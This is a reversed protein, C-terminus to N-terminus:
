GFKLFQGQVWNGDNVAWWTVGDVVRSEGTLELTSGGPAVYAVDAHQDPTRRVNLGSDSVVTATVAGEDPTTAPSPTAEAEPAPTAAATATPAATAGLELYQFGPGSGLAWNGDNVEHWLDGDLQSTVGTLELQSGGVAVYQVTGVGVGPRDRVNLGDAPIVVATTAVPRSEIRDALQQPDTPIELVQGAFISQADDLENFSVIDDVDVGFRGAISFLTDGEEVEYLIPGAPTPAPTPEPTATATPTHTPIPTAQPTPERIPTQTALISVTPRAATVSSAPATAGTQTGGTPTLGATEGETIDGGGLVNALVVVILVIVVVPLVLLAVFLRYRRLSSM